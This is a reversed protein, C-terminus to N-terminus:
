NGKDKKSRRFKEHRLRRDEASKLWECGCQDINFAERCNLNLNIGLRLNVNKTSMPLVFGIINDSVL